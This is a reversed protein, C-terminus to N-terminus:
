SLPGDFVSFPLLKKIFFDDYFIILNKLVSNDPDPDKFFSNPDPKDQSTLDTNRHKSLNSGFGTMILGSGFGHRCCITRM